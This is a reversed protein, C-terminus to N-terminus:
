GSTFAGMPSITSALSYKEGGHVIGSAHIGALGLALQVTTKRAVDIPLLDCTYTEKVGHVSPGLVESVLCRHQGNPGTILFDGYFSSIFRRGREPQKALSSNLSKLVELETSHKSSDASLVKLAVHRNATTDRALWVTSYSGYGLKHVVHYRGQDLEDGIIIPHLGGPKYAGLREVGDLWHYTMGVQSTSFSSVVSFSCWAQRELHLAFPLRRQLHLAM